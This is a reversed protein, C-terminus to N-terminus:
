TVQSSLIFFPLILYSLIFPLFIDHNFPLLTFTQSKSHFLPFVTFIMVIIPNLWPNPFGVLETHGQLHLRTSSNHNLPNRSRCLRPDRLSLRVLAGTRKPAIEKRKGKSSSTHEPFSNLEDEQPLPCKYDNGTCTRPKPVPTHLRTSPVKVNSKPCKPFTLKDFIAQATFFIINNPGCMFIWGKGGPHSGLYTMLESKPALKNIRVEAPIFVYAACGFTRLHDVSPRNGSLWESPSHWSLRRNPTRNYVHTAHDLAFEWWSQPLCAQLRMSEAKEMLTQIIREACGNQQHVHPISQLIKIGRETLMNIFAKSKFEGGADSMWGRVITKYQTEVMALFHKTAPLAADKTKLNITWAHSTYDDYFIIAYRFKHYSDIPFLKLDSHILEFPEIARTETPPFAKNPMKGQVCGPCIHEMPIEIKPFDKLYKGAQRMVDKSPHALQQHMTEFDVSYVTKIKSDV